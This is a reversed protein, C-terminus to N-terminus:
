ANPRYLFQSQPHAALERPTGLLALALCVLGSTAVLGHLAALSWPPARGGNAFAPGCARLGVFRRSCPHRFGRGAHCLMRNCQRERCVEAIISTSHLLALSLWTNQSLWASGQAQTTSQDVLDALDLRVELAALLRLVVQVSLVRLGLPVSLAALLRLVVQVPLGLLILLRSPVQLDERDLRHMQNLTEHLLQRVFSPRRRHHHLAPRLQRNPQSARHGM